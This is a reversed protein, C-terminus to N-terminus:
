VCTHHWRGVEEGVNVELVEVDGKGQWVCYKFGNRTCHAGFRGKRDVAIVAAQTTPSAARVRATALECAAQPSMGDRIKEVILFALCFRIM